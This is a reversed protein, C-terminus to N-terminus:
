QVYRGPSLGMVFSPQTAAQASPPKMIAPVWAAESHYAGSDGRKM